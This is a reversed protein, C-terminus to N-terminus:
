RLFDMLTPQLVKATVSLAAQYALEQTKVDLIARGLDLDEISSRQNELDVATNVNTAQARLLQAHRTGLEARGDIARNVATDMAGLQGAVDGGPARLADAIKSLLEFVPDGDTTGFIAAGDADVRVAAGSSIRREVTSDPNGTYALPDGTYAVGQNTNGAFISRGLYQTNAQTLLEARISELETAIAERGAQTTAGNSGQLVLDKAKQLLTTVGAMASDAAALWNTGDAINRAYQASAAQQARVALSDAAAAPNDSINPFKKLDLASQQAQALKASSSELNRHAAAAMTQMTVRGMM